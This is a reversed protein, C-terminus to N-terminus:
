ANDDQEKEFSQKLLQEKYWQAIGGTTGRLLGGIFHDFLKDKIELSCEELIDRQAEKILLGIDKPSGELLGRERLHIVAKQWRAPSSYSEKLSEIFDGKTPNREKWSSSHVEKFEESVFKGVMLQGFPNMKVYNKVVVGEILQAGLCSTNKLLERFLNENEIKGKFLCPVQELGIREFEAKKEEYSLYTEKGCGIDFGIVHLKPIREYILTNHKPRQLYEGRYVWNPRLIPALSKATEIAQIFMKEPAILNLLAGKSRCRLEGDIMGFSFQSGDIKEEVIVEDEYIGLLARHGLAFIKPYSSWASYAENSNNIEEM